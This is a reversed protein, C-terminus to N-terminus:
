AGREWAARLRAVLGDVSLGASEALRAELAHAPARAAQLSDRFRPYRAVLDDIRQDVTVFAQAVHRDAVSLAVAEWGRPTRQPDALATVPHAAVPGALEGWGRETLWRAGLQGHELSERTHTKDIDHLLAAVEVLHPDVAVGAAALLRAAEAAV